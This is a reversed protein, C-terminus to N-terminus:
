PLSYFSNNPDSPDNSNYYPPDDGYDSHGNWLIFVYTGDPNKILKSNSGCKTNGMSEVGTAVEGGCFVTTTYSFNTQGSGIFNGDVHWAYYDIGGSDFYQQSYTHTAATIDFLLQDRSCAKDWVILGKLSTSTKYWGIESYRHCQGQVQHSSTTRVYVWPGGNLNPDTWNITAKSGFWNGSNEETANHVTSGHNASVTAMSFASLLIIAITLMAYRARM